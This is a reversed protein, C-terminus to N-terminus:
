WSKISGTALYLWDGTKIGTLMKNHKLRYRAKHRTLAHVVMNVGMKQQVSNNKNSWTLGYGHVYLGVLRNKLYIGEIRSEEESSISPPGDDFDFFCHFIEHDKRLPKFEYQFRYDGGAIARHPHGSDGAVDESITRFVTSMMEKASDRGRNFGYGPLGNDIIVFGGNVIYHGLNWCENETLSFSGDNTIYIFPYQFIDKSNISIHKDRATYINTYRNLADALDKVVRRLTDPPTIIEGCGLTIHTFGQIAMKNDPPVIVMSKHTGTDFLLQDKMPISYKPILAKTDEIFLSDGLIDSLSLASMDYDIKVNFDHEPIELSSSPLKTLINKSPTRFVTKKRYEYDKRISKSLEYPRTMRPEILRLQIVRSTTKEREFRTHSIYVGIVAHFLVAVVFGLYLLKRNERELRKIDIVDSIRNHPPNKDAPEM